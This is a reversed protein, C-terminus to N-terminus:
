SMNWTHGESGEEGALAGAEGGDARGRVSTGCHPDLHEAAFWIAMTMGM